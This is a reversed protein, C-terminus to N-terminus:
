GLSFWVHVPDHDSIRQESEPPLLRTWAQPVLGNGRYLIHDIRGSPMLHPLDYLITREESTTSVNHSDQWGDSILMKYDPDTPNFNFDGMFILPLNRTIFETFRERCLDVMPRTCRHDIHTNFAIFERKSLSHRLHTWMIARPAVNGFGISPRDPTPSLWWYGSAPSDFDETRYFLILEYPNPIDPLGYRAYKAHWASLLVPDPDIVPVTLATFEPLQAQLFQFQRSTVEQLGILTPKAERLVQVFLLKREDWTPVGPPALFDASINSTVVSIKM